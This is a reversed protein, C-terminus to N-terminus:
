GVDVILTTGPQLRWPTVDYKGALTTSSSQAVDVGVTVTVPYPPVPLPDPGTVALPKLFVPPAGPTDALSLRAGAAHPRTFVATLTPPSAGPNVALVKVAEQNAGVDVVLVSGPRVAWSVAPGTLPLPTTGALASVAVTQPPWAAPVPQALS